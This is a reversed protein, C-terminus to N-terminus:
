DDVPKVEDFNMTNLYGCHHCAWTETRIGHGEEFEAELNYGSDVLEFAENGCKPCRDM